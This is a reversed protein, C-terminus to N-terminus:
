AEKRLRAVPIDLQERYKAVTRRAVPYGEKALLNMLQEDSFPKKKNESEVINQLTKKVEHTSVEEGSDTTMSESFFYKLIFIGFETQVYKSNAVRSITSIDMEIAEAIDKLIMPRLDMEDGSLFFAKQYEMIANMTLLLTHQRQKIADIFWKASDIKQKIFLLAEKEQKSKRKGSNYSKLMERYGESIHLDPANRANLTLELRGNNNFIFFDPIIYNHNKGTTSFAAGPKPTLRLVLEVASRFEQESVKLRQRIKEYHKKTFSEFNNRIIETALIRAEGNDKERKLQLLLCEQLNQAAVGAPDFEQIKEMIGSVEKEDTILNQNFALDDAISVADRRLYGDDDISGIIQHAIRSQREDLDLMSLQSELYDHFTSEIKVPPATPEDDGDDHGQYAGSYDNEDQLYDSLDMQLYDDVIDGGEEDGESASELDAKHDGDGFLSDEENEDLTGTELAPNSELEERIRDELTATPVQLLKMLQIQQPSLKQILKQQQTQRLLGGPM